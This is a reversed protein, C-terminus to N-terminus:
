NNFFSVPIPNKLLILPNKKGFILFCVIQTFITFIRRM